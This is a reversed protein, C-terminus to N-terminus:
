ETQITNNYQTNYQVTSYQLITHITHISEITHEITHEIYQTYINDLECSYSSLHTCVEAVSSVGGTM